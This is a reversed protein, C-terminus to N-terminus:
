CNDTRGLEGSKHQQMENKPTYLRPDIWTHTHTTKHTHTASISAPHQNCLASVNVPTTAFTWKTMSPVAPVSAIARSKTPLLHLYSRDETSFSFAFAILISIYYTNIYTHM